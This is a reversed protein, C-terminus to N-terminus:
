FFKFFKRESLSIKFRKLDNPLHWLLKNDKGIMGNASTAFIMSFKDLFNQPNSQYPSIM